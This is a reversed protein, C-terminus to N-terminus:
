FTTPGTTKTPGTGGGKSVLLELYTIKPLIFTPVTGAIYLLM